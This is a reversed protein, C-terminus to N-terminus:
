GSSSTAGSTSALTTCADPTTTTPISETKLGGMGSLTGNAVMDLVYAPVISEPKDKWSKEQSAQRRGEFQKIVPSTFPGMPGDTPFM